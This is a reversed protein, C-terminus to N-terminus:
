PRFIYRKASALFTKGISNEDQFAITYADKIKCIAICPTKLLDVIIRYIFFKTAKHKRKVKRCLLIILSLLTETERELDKFAPNFCRARKSTYIISSM